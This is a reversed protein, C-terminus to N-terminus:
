TCHRGFELSLVWGKFVIKSWGEDSMENWESNKTPFENMRSTLVKVYETWDLILYTISKDASLSRASTWSSWSWKSPLSRFTACNLFIVRVKASSRSTLQASRLLSQTTKIADWWAKDRMWFLCCSVLPFKTVKSPFIIWSSNSAFWSSTFSLSTMM